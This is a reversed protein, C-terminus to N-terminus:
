RRGFDGRRPPRRAYPDGRGEGSRPRGDERSSASSPPGRNGYYDGSRATQRPLGNDYRGDPPGHRGGGDRNPSRRGSSGDEGGRFRPGDWNGPRGDRPGMANGSGRGPPGRQFGDRDGDRSSPPGEGERNFSRPSPGDDRGVRGDRGRPPPPGMNRGERYNPPGDPHGDDHPYYQRPRDPGDRPHRDRWDRDDRDFSPSRRRRSSRYRERDDDDDREGRSGRDSRSSRDGGRRDKDGRHRDGKSRRRYDRDEDRRSSRERDEGRGSRERRDSSRRGDSGRDSRDSRSRSGRDDDHPDEANRGDGIDRKTDEDMPERKVEDSKTDQEDKKPRDDHEKDIKTSPGPLAESKRGDAEGRQEQAGAQDTKESSEQSSKQSRSKDRDGLSRDDEDMSPRDVSRKKRSRESGEEDRRRRKHSDEDRERYRRRDDGERRMRRDDDDRHFRDDRRSSRDRDRPEGRDRNRFDGYGDRDRRSYDRDGKPRRDNRDNYRRDHDGKSRDDFGVKVQRRDSEEFARQSDKERNFDDRGPEERPRRQKEDGQRHDSTDEDKRKVDKEEGPETVGESPVADQDMQTEGQNTENNAKSRGDSDGRKPEDNKEHAKRDERSEKNTFEKGDNPVDVSDAAQERSRREDDRQKRDDHEEKDRRDHRGGRDRDRRDDRRRDRRSDGRDRRNERDRRHDERDRRDERRYDERDRDRRYEERDGRHDDRRRHHDGRSSSKDPRGDRRSRGGTRSSGDRERGAYEGDNDASIRSVPEGKVAAEKSAAGQQRAEEMPQDLIDGSTETAKEAGDAPAPGIGDQAVKKMISTYVKDYEADAEKETAGGTRADNRAKEAAAKAEKRKKKTQFEHFHGMPGVELRGLQTPDDPAAPAKWFYSHQLANAATLRKRPDWELLKELLNLAPGGVKTHYKDRLRSSTPPTDKRISPLDLPPASQSSLPKAKKMREFFEWSESTPTGLLDIILNLTELESKGAFLPKGLLLEALICGASWVDVAPGYQCAGLLIEPPRYWLTIVKNTLDNSSSVSSSNNSQMQELISPEICRALGFDALKLRFHSDLLINSSKIDRHVYKNEHMFALAELLQKFVSKIQVEEFHYAVDLLGTLDHEVYELVLFLNGKYAERADSAKDSVPQDAAAAPGAGGGVSKLPPDDTDLHEVGKSTVVEIMSLLRPHHLRKLIKIERILQLPMGWYGGHHIRMKKMAVIRGTDKCRARYVQGYTGEGIQELREYHALTRTMQYWASFDLEPEPTVMTSSAGPAPNSGNYAGTQNPGPRPGTHNM